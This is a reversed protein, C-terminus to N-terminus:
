AASAARYAAVVDDLPGDMRVRGHELWVGRSCLDPLSDLDHSVVVMTRGAERHGRLRETCRERFQQDGVALVEDLLLVEPDVCFAVSFALRAKMGSSYYKLPVDMFDGIEAFEVIEPIRRAIETRSLGMVASYLGVNESGTLEPHFGVGLEIIAAVRGRTIVTGESPAYIGAMLRLATSKGSGNDGVLAVSEGRGISLDLDSLTFAAHRVHVPRRLLTRIFFERLSSTRHEYYYYRKTVHRCEVAPVASALGTMPASAPEARLVASRNM